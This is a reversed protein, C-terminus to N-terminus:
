RLFDSNGYGLPVISDSSKFMLCHTLNRSIVGPTRDTLMQLIVGAGVRPNHLAAWDACHEHVGPLGPLGPAWPTRHSKSQPLVFRM